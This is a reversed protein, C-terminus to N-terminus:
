NERPDKFFEGRKYVPRYVLDHTEESYGVVESIEEIRYDKMFIVFRMYHLMRLIDERSYDTEYKVYDALKNMAETSSVGHVSSWCKHGTYAANMFYAAEGGKIESIIFYDLDTLLGNIALDKLTYKIKSEGRNQIVHQYMMDPHDSFLEDSEQIVAGSCYEPIVDLMGNMLTTKGSAGKGTFEIGSSEEAMWILFPILEEPFMPYPNGDIDVNHALDYLSKKHKPIKRIHVVPKKNCNIISSTLNFRLRFKDNSDIDTFIQIADLDSLNVKNRSCVIDVFRRYDNADRFKVNGSFRKGFMKIRVNDESYIKIDSINDDNILDEIVYYGWIYKELKELEDEITENELGIDEFYARMETFLKEKSMTGRQINALYNREPATMYDLADFFIEDDEEVVNNEMEQDLKEDAFQDSEQLETDMSDNVTDNLEMDNSVPENTKKKFLGM